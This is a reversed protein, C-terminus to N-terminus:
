KALRGTQQHFFLSILTGIFVLFMALIQYLSIKIDLFIVSFFLAFVPLMNISLSTVIAGGRKVAMNWLFYSALAPFIAIYTLFYPTNQALWNPQSYNILDWIYLPLSFVTGMGILCLLLAATHIESPVKRLLVSYLSFSFVAFLMILDGINVGSVQKNSSVMVLVVGSFALSIGLIDKVKFQHQGLVWSILLILAPMTATIIGVNGPSTTQLALYQFANYITISLVSLLSILAKHQWILSFQRLVKPLAYPLLICFALVWRWFNLSFPPVTDALVKGVIANGAWFITATIAFMFAITGPLRFM